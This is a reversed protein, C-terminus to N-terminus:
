RECCSLFSEFQAVVDDLVSNLGHDGSILHLQCDTQRAYKMSLEWPIVEDSWGHVIHVHDCKVPQHHHPYGPVFLAPAMMFVGVPQCSEAAVAAVYGGMSSGVLLYDGQEKEVYDQLRAVRESPDFTDSYDISEVIFGRGKAVNALRTIKSGWPGSEKGHSFIVKTKSPIM